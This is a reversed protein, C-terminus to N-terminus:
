EPFIIAFDDKFPNQLQRSARVSWQGSSSYESVLRFIDRARAEKIPEESAYLTVAIAYLQGFADVESFYDTLKRHRLSDSLLSEFTTLRYEPDKAILHEIATSFTIVLGYTLTRLAAEYFGTAYKFVGLKHYATLGGYDSLRYLELLKTLGKGSLTEALLIPDLELFSSLESRKERDRGIIKELETTYALFDKTNFYINALQSRIAYIDDLVELKAANEIAALYQNKALTYEVEAEFVRGIWFEGEPFTGLIERAARFYFLAQGYDGNDFLQKGHEHLLWGPSNEVDVAFINFVNFVLLFTILGISFRKGPV